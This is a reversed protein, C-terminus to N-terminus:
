DVDDKICTLPSATGRMVNNLTAVLPIGWVPYSIFFLSMDCLPEVLAVFCFVRICFHYSFGACPFVVSESCAHDANNFCTKTSWYHHKKLALLVSHVLRDVKTVNLIRYSKILLFFDNSLVTYSSKWFFENKQLIDSIVSSQRSVTSVNSIFTIQRISRLKDLYFITLRSNYINRWSNRLARM